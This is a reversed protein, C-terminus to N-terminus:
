QDFRHIHIGSCFLQHLYPNITCSACCLLFCLSCLFIYLCIYLCYISPFTITCLRVLISYVFNCVCTFLTYLFFLTHFMHSLVGMCTIYTWSAYLLSMPLKSHASKCIHPFKWPVYSGGKLFCKASSIQVMLLFSLAYSPPWWVVYFPPYTFLVRQRVHDTLLHFSLLRSSIINTFSLCVVLYDPFSCPYSLM